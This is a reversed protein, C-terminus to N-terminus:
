PLGVDVLMALDESVCVSVNQLKERKRQEDRLKEKLKSVQVDKSLEVSLKRDYPSSIIISM